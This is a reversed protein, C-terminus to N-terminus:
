CRATKCVHQCEEGFVDFLFCYTVPVGFMAPLHVKLDNLLSGASNNVNEGCSLTLAPM